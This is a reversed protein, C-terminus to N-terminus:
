QHSASSPAPHSLETIHLAHPEGTILKDIRMIDSYFDIPLFPCTQKLRTEAVFRSVASDEASKKNESLFFLFPTDFSSLLGINKISIAEAETQDSYPEYVGYLMRNKKLHEFFATNGLARRSFLPMVNLFKEPLAAADPVLDAPFFWLFACDPNERFVAAPLAPAEKAAGPLFAYTYVGREKERRIQQDLAKTDSDNLADYSFLSIWLTQNESTHRGARLRRVGYTWSNYGLNMGFTTLIEPDTQKVLDEVCQYYSSEPNKLLKQFTTFIEKQVSGKACVKGLDALKRISRKPTTEMGHLTRQIELRIVARTVDQSNM